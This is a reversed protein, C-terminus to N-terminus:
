APEAERRDRIRRALRFVVVAFVILLV